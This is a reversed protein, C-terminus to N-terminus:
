FAQLHHSAKIGQLYTSGSILFGLTAPNFPSPNLSQGHSISQRVRQLPLSDRYDEAKESWFDTLFLPDRSCLHLTAHNTLLYRGWLLLTTTNVVLAQHPDARNLGQLQDKVHSVGQGNEAWRGVWHREKKTWAVM